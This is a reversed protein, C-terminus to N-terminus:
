TANHVRHTFVRKHLSTCQEQHMNRHAEGPAQKLVLVDKSCRACVSVSGAYVALCSFKSFVHLQAQSTSVPCLQWRMAFRRPVRSKLLLNSSHRRIIRQWRGRSQQKLDHCHADPQYTKAMQWSETAELRPLPRPPGGRGWVHRVGTWRKQFLVALSRDQLLGDHQRHDGREEVKRWEGGSEEVNRWKGQTGGFRM